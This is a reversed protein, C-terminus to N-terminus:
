KNEEGTVTANETEAAVDAEATKREEEAQKAEEAEKARLQSAAAVAHNVGDKVASSSVTAGSVASIEKEEDAQGRTVILEQSKGKFQSLFENTDIRDGYGKTENVSLLEVATVAGESNVGVLLRVNGKYGSAETEICYGPTENGNLAKKVSLIKLAADFEHEVKEYSEAPLVRKMAGFLKKEELSEAVPRLLNFVGGLILAVAGLTAALVLSTKFLEHRGEKSLKPFKIASFSFKPFKFKKNKM